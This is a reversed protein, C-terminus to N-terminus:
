IQWFPKRYEREVDARTIGIDCLMSDSLSALDRRERRIAHWLLVRDLAGTILRAARGPGGARRLTETSTTAM